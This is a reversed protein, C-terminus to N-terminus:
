GDFFLVGLLIPFQHMSSTARLDRLFLFILMEIQNKDSMKQTVFALNILKKAVLRELFKPYLKSYSKHSAWARVNQSGQM